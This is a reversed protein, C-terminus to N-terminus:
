FGTTRLRWQVKFGASFTKFIRIGPSNKLGVLESDRPTFTLCSYNKWLEGASYITYEHNLLMLHKWLAPFISTLEFHFCIYILIQCDRDVKKELQNSEENIVVSKVIFQYENDTMQMFSYNICWENWLKMFVIRLLAM